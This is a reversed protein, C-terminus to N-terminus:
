QPHRHPPNLLYIRENSLFGTCKPGQSRLLKTHRFPERWDFCKQFNNRDWTDLFNICSSNCSEKWSIIIKTKQTTRYPSPVSLNIRRHFYQHQYKKSETSIWFLSIGWIDAAGQPFCIKVREKESTKQHYGQLTFCTPPTSVVTRVKIEHSHVTKSPAQAGTHQMSNLLQWLICANPIWHPYLVDDIFSYYQNHRKLSRVQLYKCM